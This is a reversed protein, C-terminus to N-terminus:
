KGSMLSSHSSKQIRFLEFGQNEDYIIIEYPFRYTAIDKLYAGFCSPNNLLEQNFVYENTSELFWPNPKKVREPISYEKRHPCGMEQSTPWKDMSAIENKYASVWVAFLYIAFVFGRLWWSKIAKHGWGLVCAAFRWHKESREVTSRLMESEKEEERVGGGGNSM